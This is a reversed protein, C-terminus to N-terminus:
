ASLAIITGAKKTVSAFVSGGNTDFTLTYESAAAAIVVRQPASRVAKGDPDTYIFVVNDTTGEATPTGSIVGTVPDIVLGAPLDGCVM